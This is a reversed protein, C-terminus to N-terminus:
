RVATSSHTREPLQLGHEELSSQRIADIWSPFFKHLSDYAIHWSTLIRPKCLTLLSAPLIDLTCKTHELSLENNNPERCKRPRLSLHPFGHICTDDHMVHNNLTLPLMQHIVRFWIVPLTRKRSKTMVHEGCKSCKRAM